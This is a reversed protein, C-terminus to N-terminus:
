AAIEELRQEGVNIGQLEVGTDMGLDEVIIPKEGPPKRIGDIIGHFRFRNHDPAM